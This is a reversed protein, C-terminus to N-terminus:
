PKNTKSYIEKVLDLLGYDINQVPVKKRILERADDFDMGHKVLYALAVANSRSIGSGCVVIVKKGKKHAKDIQDVKSKFKEESNGAGDVLDTVIVLTKNKVKKQEPEGFGSTALNKTIWYM